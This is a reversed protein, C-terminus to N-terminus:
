GVDNNCEVQKNYNVQGSVSLLGGAVEGTVKVGFTLHESSEESHSSASRRYNVVTEQRFIMAPRDGAGDFASSMTKRTRSEISLLLGKGLAIEERDEKGLPMPVEIQKGQSIPQEITCRTPDEPFNNESMM